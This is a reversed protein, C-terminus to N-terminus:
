GQRAHGAVGTKSTALVMCCVRLLTRKNKRNYQSTPLITIQQVGDSIIKRTQILIIAPLFKTEPGDGLGHQQDQELESPKLDALSKTVMGKTVIGETVMGKTALQDQELESAKLDALGKTVTSGTVMGKTVTGKTAPQGQELESSKLDALGKTVM